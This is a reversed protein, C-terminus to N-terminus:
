PFSLYNSIYLFDQYRDIALPIEPIDCDYLRFCYIEERSAWKRLHKANKTLRNSLMEAHQNRKEVSILQEDAM